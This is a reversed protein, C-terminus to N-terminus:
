QLDLYDSGGTSILFESPSTDTIAELPRVDVYYHQLISTQYQTMELLDLSSPLVEGFDKDSLVHNILLYIYSLYTGRKCSCAHAQFPSIIIQDKGERPVKKTTVIKGGAKRKIAKTRDQFAETREFVDQNHSTM